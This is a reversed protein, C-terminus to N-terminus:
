GRRTTTGEHGTAFTSAGPITRGGVTRDATAADGTVKGTVAPTPIM